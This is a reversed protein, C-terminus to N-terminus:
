SGMLFSRHSMIRRTGVDRLGQGIDGRQGANQVENECRDELMECGAGDATNFRGNLQSM